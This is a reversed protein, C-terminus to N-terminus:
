YGEPRGVKSRTTNELMPNALSDTKRSGSSPLPINDRERPNLKKKQDLNVLAFPLGNWIYRNVTYCSAKPDYGHSQSPHIVVLRLVDVLELSKDYVARRALLNTVEHVVDTLIEM